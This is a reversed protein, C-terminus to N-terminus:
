LALEEQIIPINKSPYIAITSKIRQFAKYIQDRNKHKSTYNSTECYRIIMIGGQHCLERITEQM